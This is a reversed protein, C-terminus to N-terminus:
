FKFTFKGNKQILRDDIFVKGGERLDKIMDWHLASENKGGGKKYASGLALHITGGIKEDFLINKIFRKISFNTGIGFEGLYQSGKDTSIMEKLFGENKKASSKVVKGKRFELYVDEVERGGKIAPYTFRVHGEVTDEVPAIYVEGSPMNRKADSNIGQRGEISFSIDTDSAVIRVKSGKDLVKKVKEQRRSQERWDINTAKYIFDELEELSMSAEQALAHTPYECIVWNDAKLIMDRLPNLVKTRLAVKKPNINTFERTNYDAGISIHGDVKKTEFEAIKPYHKLQENTAISFYAYSFGPVIPNAIPFAGKRLILKYCELALEKAEIGFNIKITDGKRVKICYNVLNDALTKVRPDLMM